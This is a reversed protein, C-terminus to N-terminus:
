KKSSIWTAIDNILDIDVNGQKEYEAPTSKGEGQIFFHNLKPYMKFDVKKNEKFANQWLQADATTTQYDRLGYVFLMPMNITKASAIPDYNKLDYWYSAPSQLIKTSDNVAAPTLIKIRDRQVKVSDVMQKKRVPDKLDAALYEAQAVFVDELRRGNPALYILGKISKTEKAIRPLMMGGFSHGCLFINNTDISTDEKAVEIAKLVDEIVEQRVTYTSAEHDMRSKFLRTRKEFRLVAINKLALGSALDRFIKLPGLSEDRDNPGSGHILIVLPHKGPLNPISLTGPIRYSNTTMLVKRDTAAAANYYSPTKYEPRTDFPLFYLGKIKSKADWILRFNMKRNEFQLVQTQVYFAGQTSSEDKVKTKFAGNQKLLGNWIAALRATDLKTFVDKDIQDFVKQFEKRQFHELVTESLRKIDPEQANATFAFLVLAILLKKM